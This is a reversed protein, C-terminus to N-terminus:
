GTRDVARSPEILAGILRDVRAREALYDKRAETPVYGEASALHRKFAELLAESAEPPVSLTPEAVVGEEFPEWASAGNSLVRFVARAHDPQDRVVTLHLTQRLWDYAVHARVTM